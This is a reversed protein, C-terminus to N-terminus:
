TKSKPQLFTTYFADGYYVFRDIGKSQSAIRNLSKICHTHTEYVLKFSEEDVGLVLGSASAEPHRNGGNDKILIMVKSVFQEAIEVMKKHTAIVLM